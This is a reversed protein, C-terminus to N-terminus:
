RLTEGGVGDSERTGGPEQIRARARQQVASCQVATWLPRETRVDCRAKRRGGVLVRGDVADVADVADAGRM